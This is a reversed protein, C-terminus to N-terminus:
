LKPYDKLDQVLHGYAFSPVPSIIIIIVIIVLLVIRVTFDSKLVM